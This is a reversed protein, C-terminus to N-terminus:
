HQPLQYAIPVTASTNAYSSDHWRSLIWSRASADLDPYGSSSIVDVDAASGDADFQISLVVTGSEHHILSEYPYGPRPFSGSGIVLRSVIAPATAVPRPKPQVEPKKIILKPPPPPPKVIQKIFDPNAVPPPPPLINKLEVEIQEDPPPAAIAPSGSEKMLQEISKIGTLWAVILIIAALLIHIGLAGATGWRVYTQEPPYHNLTSIHPM